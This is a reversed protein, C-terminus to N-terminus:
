AVKNGITGNNSTNVADPRFECACVCCYFRTGLPDVIEHILSVRDEHCRPCAVEGIQVPM